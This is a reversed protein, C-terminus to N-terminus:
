DGDGIRPGAAEDITRIVRAPSGVAVAGAPLSKTVVSGAGVVCRDGITVGPLITVNAGIWVREGITVKEFVEPLGPASFDHHTTTVTAGPGFQSDAGIEIGGHGFFRCFSNVMCRRGFVVSGSAGARIYVHDQFISDDGISVNACNIIRTHARIVVRRGACRRVYRYKLTTLVGGAIDFLEFPDKRIVTLLYKLANIAM